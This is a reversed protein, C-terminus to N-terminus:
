FARIIDSLFDKLIRYVEKGSGELMPIHGAGEVLHFREDPIQFLQKLARAADQSFCSDESGMILVCPIDQEMLAGRAEELWGDWREQNSCDKGITRMAYMRNTDSISNEFRILDPDTEPAFM